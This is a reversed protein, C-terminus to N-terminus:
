FTVGIGARLDVGGVAVKHGTVSQKPFLYRCAGTINFRGCSSYNLGAEVEGIGKHFKVSGLYSKEKGWAVGGGLSAYLQLGCEFDHQRRLYFTLPVEQLLTRRKLFTTCGHKRWYSVKAGIGWPQWFYYCGDATIVNAMGHGYVKKFTCDQKFVYGASLAGNFSAARDECVEGLLATSSVVLPTLFSFFFLLKKM